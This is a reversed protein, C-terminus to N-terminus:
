PADVCMNRAENQSARRMGAGSKICGLVQMGCGLVM